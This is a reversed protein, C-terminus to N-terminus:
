DAPPPPEGRAIAEAYRQEKNFLSDWGLVHSDRSEVSTFPTQHFTQRTMGDKEEFTVTVLTETTDGIEWAFSFVIEERPTISKFEGHSFGEGYTASTMHVRWKGGPRFDAELSIIHFGEPGWWRRMHERDEWLRWVLSLPAEFERTVLLEDDRLPRAEVGAPM